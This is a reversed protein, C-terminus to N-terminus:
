RRTAFNLYDKSLNNDLVLHSIFGPAYVSIILIKLSLIFLVLFVIMKYYHVIQM